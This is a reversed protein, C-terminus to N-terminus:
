SGASSCCSASASRRPTAAARLRDAGKRPGAPTAPALATGNVAGDVINADFWAVADFAERGPGGMFATVAEDYYWANALLAPEVAKAQKREYVLWAPSSASQRRAVAIAVLM